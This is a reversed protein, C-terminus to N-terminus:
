RLMRPKETPLMRVEHDNCGDPTLEDGVVDGVGRLLGSMKALTQLAAVDLELVEMGLAVGDLDSLVIGKVLLKPKLTL